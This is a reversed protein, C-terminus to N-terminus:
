KCHKNIYEKAVKRIMRQRENLKDKNKQYAKKTISCARKRDEETMRERKRRGSEFASKQGGHSM